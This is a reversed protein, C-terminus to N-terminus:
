RGKFDFVESIDLHQGERGPPVLKHARRLFSQVAARPAELLATGETSELSLCLTNDDSTESPWVKVDGAGAHASVGAALIERAFVWRVQGASGTNFTAEIAYPDTPRYRFEAPLPLSTTASVLLRLHLSCIVEADRQDGETRVSWEEALWPEDTDRDLETDTVEDKRRLRRREELYARLRSHLWTAPGTVTPAGVLTQADTGATGEDELEDRHRAIRGLTVTRTRARLAEAAPTALSSRELQAVFALAALGEECTDPEPTEGRDLREKLDALEKVCARFQPHRSPPAGQEARRIRTIARAIGDSTLEERRM